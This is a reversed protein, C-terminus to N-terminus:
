FIKYNHYTWPAIIFIMSIIYIFSIVIRKTLKVRFPILLPIVIGILAIAPRCLSTIGMIIGAVIFYFARNKNIAFILIYFSILLLFTYLVETYLYEVHYILSPQIAVLFAAFLSSRNGTFKIGIFYTIPILLTSIISQIILVIFNNYGFLSYVAALFLPYIPTSVPWPFFKDNLLEIAQSHYRGEDGILLPPEEFLRTTDSMVIIRLLFGVLSLVTLYLLYRNKELSKIYFFIFYIITFLLLIIILISCVIYLINM